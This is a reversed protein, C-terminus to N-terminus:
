PYKRNWKANGTTPEILELAQQVFFLASDQGSMAYLRALYYKVRAALVTDKKVTSNHDLTLWAQKISDGNAATLKQDELTKIQAAIADHDPSLGDKKQACAIFFLPLLLWPSIRNLASM